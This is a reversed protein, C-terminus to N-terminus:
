DENENGGPTIEGGCNDKRITIAHEINIEERGEEQNQKQEKHSKEVYKM